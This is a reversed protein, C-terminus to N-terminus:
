FEQQVVWFVQLFEHTLIYVYCGYNESYTKTMKKQSESGKMDSFGLPLM